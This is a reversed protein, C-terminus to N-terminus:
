TSSVINWNNGEGFMKGLFSSKETEPL